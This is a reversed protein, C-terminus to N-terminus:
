ETDSFKEYTNHFDKPTMAFLQGNDKRVLFSGHDIATWYGSQELVWIGNASLYQLKKTRIAALMWDPWVAEDIDYTTYAFQYAEVTTPKHTYTDKSAPTPRYLYCLDLAESETSRTAFLKESLVKLFRM